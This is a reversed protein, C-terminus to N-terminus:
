IKGTRVEDLQRVLGQQAVTAVISGDARFITGSGLALAGSAGLTDQSYLMWENMDVRGHLWLAHDLSSTQLYDDTFAIGLPIFTTQFIHFDSAYALWCAHEARSANLRDKMRFWFSRAPGQADPPPAGFLFPAVPRWDIQQRRLWFPRHREPLEGGKAFIETLPLLDDPPPVDPMPPAYIAGAEDVHFSATMDLLPRGHQSVGIRRVAFSRGDTVRDVAIDLPEGTIGPKLFYAHLSHAYKEGDVTRQAAALAQAVVLGGYTRLLGSPIPRTRFRDGELEEFDFALRREVKPDDPFPNDAM